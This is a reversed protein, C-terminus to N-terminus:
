KRMCIFCHERHQIGNDIYVKALEQSGIVILNQHMGYKGGTATYTTIGGVDNNAVMVTIGPVATLLFLRLTKASRCYLYYLRAFINM